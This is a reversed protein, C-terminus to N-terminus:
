AGICAVALMIPTPTSYNISTYPFLTSKIGSFQNPFGRFNDTSGLDDFNTTAVIFQFVNDFIKRGM